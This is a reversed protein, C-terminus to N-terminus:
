GGWKKRFQLGLNLPMLAWTTIRGRSLLSTLSIIVYTYFNCQKDELFLRNVVPAIRSLIYATRWPFGPTSIALIM